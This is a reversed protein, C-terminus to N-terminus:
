SGSSVNLVARHWSLKKCFHHAANRTGGWDGMLYSRNWIDGGYEPIPLIGAPADAGEGSEQALAPVPSCCIGALLTVSLTRNMTNSISDTM